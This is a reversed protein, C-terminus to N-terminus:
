DPNSKVSSKDPKPSSGSLGFIITELSVDDL